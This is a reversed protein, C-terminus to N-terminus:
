TTLFTEISGEAVRMSSPLTARFGLHVAMWSWGLAAAGRLGFAPDPSVGLQGLAGLALEISLAEAHPAPEPPAATPEALAQEQDNTEPEPSREEYQAPPEPEAQAGSELSESSLVVAARIPDIVISMALVIDQ